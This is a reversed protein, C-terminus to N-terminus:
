GRHHLCRGGQDHVHQLGPMSWGLGFRSRRENVILIRVGPVVTERQPHDQWWGTVVVDVAYAGSRWGTADFQAALRQTGAGAHFFIEHSGNTFPIWHGNQASRLKLSFWRPPEPTSYDTVDVQVFGRPRAQRNAFLLTVSREQDLSVYAPTSYTVVADFCDAACLSANLMGGAHPDLSVHPPYRGPPPPCNAPEIEGQEGDLKVPCNQPQFPPAPEPDQQAGAPAGSGLLLLVILPLVTRALPQRQPPPPM